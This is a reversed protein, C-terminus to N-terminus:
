AGMAVTIAFLPVLPLALAVDFAGYFQGFYLEAADMASVLVAVADLGHLEILQVLLSQGVLALVHLVM